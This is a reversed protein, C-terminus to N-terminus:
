LEVNGGEADVTSSIHVDGPPALHTPEGKARPVPHDDAILTRAPEQEEARPAIAPRHETPARRTPQECLGSAHGRRLPPPPDSATHNRYLPIQLPGHRVTPHPM